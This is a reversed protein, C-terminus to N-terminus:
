HGGGHGDGEAPPPTASSDMPAPAAEPAAEPAMQEQGAAETGEGEKKAGGGCSALTFLGIVMILAFLKKM